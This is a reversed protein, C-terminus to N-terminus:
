CIHQVDHIESKETSHQCHGQIVEHDYNDVNVGLSKDSLEFTVCVPDCIHYTNELISCPHCVVSEM